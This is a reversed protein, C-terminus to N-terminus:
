CVIVLPHDNHSTRPYRPSTYVTDFSYLITVFDDGHSGKNKRPIDMQQEGEELLAVQWFIVYISLNEIPM